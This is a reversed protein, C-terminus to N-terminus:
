PLIFIFVFDYKNKDKGLGAVHTTKKIELNHAYFKEQKISNVKPINPLPTVNNATATIHDSPVLQLCVWPLFALSM